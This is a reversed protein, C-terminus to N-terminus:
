FNDNENTFPGPGNNNNDHNHVNPGSPPNNNNNITGGSNNNNNTFGQGSGGGNLNNNTSRGGSVVGSAGGAGPNTSNVPPLNFGSTNGGPTSTGSSGSCGEVIECGTSWCQTGSPTSESNTQCRKALAAYSEGAPHAATHLTLSLFFPLLVVPHQASLRM